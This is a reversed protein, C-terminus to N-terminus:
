AGSGEGGSNRNRSSSSSANKGNSTKEGPPEAQAGNKILLHVTTTQGVPLKNGDVTSAGELFKGRHLIRLSGPGEPVEESWEKPWTDVIKQKVTDITDSPNVLLDSKKGSVLLLRLNVKDEPVKDIVIVSTEDATSTSGQQDSM